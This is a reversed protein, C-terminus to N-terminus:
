PPPFTEGGPILALEEPPTKLGNRLATLSAKLAAERDKLQSGAAQSLEVARALVDRVLGEIATIKSKQANLHPNAANLLGSNAARPGIGVFSQHLPILFETLRLARQPNKSRVNLIEEGIDAVALGDHYAVLAFNYQPNLPRMMGLAWGAWARTAPAANRNALFRLATEAFEGKPQTPSITSTRLSGLAELMRYQVPWFTDPQRDLFNAVSQAAKASQVGLDRTGQATLRTLGLAALLKVSLVQDADDLQKIFLPITSDEMSRSLAEMTWIRAFLHNKLLDGSMSLLSETYVQRFGSNSRENALELPHRLRAAAAEMDNVAKSSSEPDLVAAINSHKTMIAAQSQLYNVVQVRDVTGGNAMANVAKEMRVNMAETTVARPFLEPFTNELAAAANPDRFREELGGTTAKKTDVLGMQEEGDDEPADDAPADPAPKPTQAYLFPTSPGCLIGVCFVVWLSVRSVGPILSQLM